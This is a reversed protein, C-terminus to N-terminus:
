QRCEGGLRRSMERQRCWLGVAEVFDTLGPENKPHPHGPAVPLFATDPVVCENSIQEEM